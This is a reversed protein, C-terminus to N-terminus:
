FEGYGECNQEGLLGMGLRLLRKMKGTGPIGDLGEDKRDGFGMLVKVLCVPLIAHKRGGMWGIRKSVAVVATNM